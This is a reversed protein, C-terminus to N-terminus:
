CAATTYRAEPTSGIIAKLATWNEHGCNGEGCVACCNATYSAGCLRRPGSQRKGCAAPHKYHGGVNVLM